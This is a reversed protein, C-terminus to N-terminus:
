LYACLFSDLKAALLSFGSLHLNRQAGSVSTILLTRCQMMLIFQVLWFILTANKQLKQFHFMNCFM